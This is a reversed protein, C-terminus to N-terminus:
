TGLCFVNSPHSRTNGQGVVSWWGSATHYIWSKDHRAHQSMALVFTIVRLYIYIAWRLWKVGSKQLYSRSIVDVPMRNSCEIEPPLSRLVRRLAKCSCRSCSNPPWSVNFFTVRTVVTHSWIGSAVMGSCSSWSLVSSHCGIIDRPDRISRNSELRSEAQLIMSWNSIGSSRWKSM